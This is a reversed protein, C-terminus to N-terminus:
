SAPRSAKEGRILQLDPRERPEDSPQGFGPVLAFPSRQATAQCRASLRALNAALDGSVRAM